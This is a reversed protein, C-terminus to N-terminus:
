GWHTLWFSSDKGSFSNQKHFNSDYFDNFFPDFTNSYTQRCACRSATQLVNLHSISHTTHHKNWGKLLRSVSQRPVHTTPLGSRREVNADNFCQNNWWRAATPSFNHCKFRCETTMAAITNFPKLNVPSTPHHFRSCRWYHHQKKCGKNIRSLQSNTLCKKSAAVKIFRGLLGSLPM